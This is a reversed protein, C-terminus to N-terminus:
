AARRLKLRARQVANDAQKNKEGAHVSDGAAVARLWRQELPTLQRFAAVILALRETRAYVDAPDSDLDPLEEILAVTEGTEANATIRASDTLPAHKGRQAAKLATILQRTIAFRAYAAFPIGRDTNFMRIARLLGVRAEQRVDDEDGGPLYFECAIGTALRDYRRALEAEARNNGAQALTALMADPLARIV